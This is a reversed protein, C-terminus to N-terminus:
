AVLDLVLFLDKHKVNHVSMTSHQLDNMHIFNGETDHLSWNASHGM